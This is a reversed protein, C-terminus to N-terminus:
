VRIATSARCSGAVRAPASERIALCNPMLGSVSRLQTVWASISPPTRGPVVVSSACRSISSSRSFRSSRRTFSIRLVADANKAWASSSRRSFRDDLEDVLVLATEPDLRDARHQLVGAHLDGRAGIVRVPGPRGRCPRDAVRYGRRQDLLHVAVVEADVPGALNVGLQAALPM